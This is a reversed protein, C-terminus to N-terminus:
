GRDILHDILLGTIPGAAKQLTERVADTVEDWALLLVLQSAIMPKPRSIEKLAALVRYHDGSRLEKMVDLLPDLGPERLPIVDSTPVAPPPSGVRVRAIASRTTSDHIDDLDLEEV